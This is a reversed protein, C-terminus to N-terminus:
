GPKIPPNYRVAFGLEGCSQLVASEAFLNSM